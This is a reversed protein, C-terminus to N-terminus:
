EEVKKQNTSVLRRRFSIGARVRVRVRVEAADIL